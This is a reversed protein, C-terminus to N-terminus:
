YSNRISHITSTMNNRWLNKPSEKSWYTGSTTFKQNQHHFANIYQQQTWVSGLSYPNHEVRKGFVNTPAQTLRNQIDKTDIKACRIVICSTSTDGETLRWKYLQFLLVKENFGLMNNIQKTRWEINTLSLHLELFFGLAVMATTELVTSQIYVNNEQLMPVFELHIRKFEHIPHSTAIATICAYM